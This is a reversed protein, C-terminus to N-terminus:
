SKLDAAEDFYNRLPLTWAHQFSALYEQVHPHDNIEEHIHLTADHVARYMRLPTLSNRNQHMTIDSRKSGIMCLVAM